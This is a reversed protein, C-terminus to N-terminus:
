ILIDGILWKTVLIPKIDSYKKHSYSVFIQNMIM